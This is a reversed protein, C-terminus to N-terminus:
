KRVNYKTCRLFTPLDNTSTIIFFPFTVTTVIYKNCTKQLHIIFEYIEQTKKTKVTKLMDIINSENIQLFFSSCKKVFDLIYIHINLKNTIERVISSM